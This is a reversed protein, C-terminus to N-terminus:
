KATNKLHAHKYVKLYNAIILIGLTIFIFTIGLESIYQMGWIFLSSLMGGFAGILGLISLHTGRSNEPISNATITQLTPLYILGGIAILFMGLILLIPHIFYSLLIYGLSFFLLGLILSTKDSMRKTMKLIMGAAITVIITDELNLYGIMEYGSINIDDVPYKSVIRISLYNPFQEKLINLLLEGICLFIFTWSAFIGFLNYKSGQGNNNNEISISTEPTYSEKIFLYTCIFSIFSTIGVTLFLWVSYDEFLFGGLLSGIAFAVSSSWMFYTYIVKRDNENSVDIIIASYAPNAASEVFYILCFAVLIPIAYFYHLSDFYSVILFGIGSIIESIVIVKKRGFRDTFRGGILYGIISIIGIIFIMTTTLLLGIKASFYVVTYPMVMTSTLLSFFSLLLRIRIIPNFSFLEKM